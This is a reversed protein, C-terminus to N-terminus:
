QAASRSGNPGGRIPVGEPLPRAAVVFGRRHLEDRFPGYLHFSDPYVWFTLTARGPRLRRLVRGFEAIPSWAREFPEGRQRREPVVEFSVFGYASGLGVMAELPSRAVEYELSFAGIPGVTGRVPQSSSPNSMRVRLRADAQAKEILGDLDIFAVRGNKLEFHYEEGTVTTAVPNPDTNLAQRPKAATLIRELEEELNEIQEELAEVRLRVDALRESQRTTEASAQEVVRDTAFRALEREEIESAIRERETIATDRREKARRVKSEAEAIRVPDPEPEPDPESKPEPQPEPDPEAEAQPEPDPHPDIAEAIRPAAPAEHPETNEFPQLVWAALGSMAVILLLPDRLARLLSRPPDQITGANATDTPEM